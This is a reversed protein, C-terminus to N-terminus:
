WSFLPGGKHVCAHTTQVRKRVWLTKCKDLFMNGARQETILKVMSMGHADLLQAPGAARIASGRGLARARARGRRPARADRADCATASALDEGRVPPVCLVPIGGGM